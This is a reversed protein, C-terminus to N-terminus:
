SDPIFGADRLANRYDEPSNLNRLTALEPDADRLEDDAVVRTKVADLLFIPRLRDERLLTEIAPLVTARRYLAALPHHYGAVFPIALDYDGILEQLRRIWAPRLWPADTATAYALEAGTPLAALGAALGQLPGRGTVPDRVVLVSDPLPPIEQGPAAVVVVPGAAEGVLRVVRQLMREPGFPLWTKPQGMRRSQGGCLVVAGLNTTM